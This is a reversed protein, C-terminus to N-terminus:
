VSDDVGSLLVAYSFPMFKHGDGFYFKNQFEVWHLRLAHLFASLSEMVMLVGITAGAWLGFGVFTLIPGLPSAISLTMVLVRDWFVISLESHALSLAWLRLYSATNSIAGLVYEITHIIQHIMVEGFDFEGEGHGGGSSSSTLKAAPADDEASPPHMALKKLHRHKLVYPKIFLMWPVAVVALILLTIQVSLQGSYLYNEQAVTYPQLFMSIMVNLLLPPAGGSPGWNTFWKFFILGVMYGFIALMFILQPVFECFVDLMRKFHLGNLLSCFIGLVMQTVGLVISLKMKLSNMYNLSNPTGAWAPDVGFPYTRGPDIRTMFTDNPHAFHWNTGFIDLAVSFMENYILGTYMSFMGMCFLLYRGGFVTKIMENMNRAASMQEEKWIMLGATITV